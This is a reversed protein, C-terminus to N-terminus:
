KHDHGDGTTHKEAGHDHGDHDHHKESCSTFLMAATGALVLLYITKM